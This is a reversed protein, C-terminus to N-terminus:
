VIRNLIQNVELHVIMNQIDSSTIPYIRTACSVPDFNQKVKYETYLAPGSHMKFFGDWEKEHIFIFLQIQQGSKPPCSLIGHDSEEDSYGRLSDSCNKISM